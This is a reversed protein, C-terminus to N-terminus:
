TPKRKQIGVESIMETKRDSPITPPSHVRGITPKHDTLESILTQLTRIVAADMEARTPEATSDSESYADRVKQIFAACGRARKPSHQEYSEFNVEGLNRKEYTYIRGGRFEIDIANEFIQYGTIGSNGGLNKYAKM